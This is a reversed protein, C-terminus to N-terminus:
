PENKSLLVSLAPPLPSFPPHSSSFARPRPKPGKQAQAQASEPRVKSDCFRGSKAIRRNLECNLGSEVFESEGGVIPIPSGWHITSDYSEVIRIVIRVVM